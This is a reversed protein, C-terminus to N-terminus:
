CNIKNNEVDIFFDNELMCKLMHTLGCLEANEDKLKQMNLSSSPVEMLLSFLFLYSGANKVLTKLFQLESM